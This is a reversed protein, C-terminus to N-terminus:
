LVGRTQWLSRVIIQQKELTRQLLTYTVWQQQEQKIITEVLFFDSNITFEKRRNPPLQDLSLFPHHIRNKVMVQAAALSPALQWAFLILAPTTQVNITTQSPLAILYPRLAAFLAPTMGKVLRLESISILPRHASRYPMSQSLYYQDFTTNTLGPTIWDLIAALLASLQSQDLNPALLKVLTQFYDQNKALGNINFRAQADYITTDVTYHHIMQSPLHWPMIDRLQQPPQSAQNHRLQDKAWAVSGNTYLAAQTDRLLLSTQETDRALRNMMQVALMAVLATLFLAIILASGRTKLASICSADAPAGTKRSLSSLPKIPLSICKNLNGGRHSTSRFM